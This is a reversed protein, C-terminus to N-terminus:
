IEKTTEESLFKEAKAIDSAHDVDIIKGFPWAQLRLGDAVLQRQFNRMRSQGQAICRDLTELARPTLCYIGGSIYHCHPTPRDHFGTINLDCEEEHHSQHSTTHPDCEGEHLSQHSTIDEDRDTSIYLPKEDDVFDTVAMLGDATSNRFAQIYRAFEEERFITDVTTLCFREGRLLHSIEHLSHMSSPTTKVVLDIPLSQQLSQLFDRTEAVRDNIIVVIRHAGQRQFIRVLREVMAEGNLQVLPKPRDVGEQALRSGEGAAIIAFNM